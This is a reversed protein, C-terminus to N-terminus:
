CMTLFPSLISLAPMSIHFWPKVMNHREALGTSFLLTPAACCLEFKTALNVDRIDTVM